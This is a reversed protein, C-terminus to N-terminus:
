SGSSYKWRVILRGSCGSHVGVETGPVFHGPRMPQERMRLRKREKPHWGDTDGTLSIRDMKLTRSM